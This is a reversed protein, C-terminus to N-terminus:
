EITWEGQKIIPEQGVFSPHQSLGGEIEYWDQTACKLTSAEDCSCGIVTIKAKDDFQEDPIKNCIEFVLKRWTM